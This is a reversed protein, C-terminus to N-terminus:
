SKVITGIHGERHPTIQVDLNRWMPFTPHLCLYTSILCMTFLYFGPKSAFSPQGWRQTITLQIITCHVVVNCVYVDVEPDMASRRKECGKTKRWSSAM